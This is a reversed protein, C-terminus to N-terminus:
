KLCFQAWDHAAVPWDDGRCSQFDMRDSFFTSQRRTGYPAWYAKAQIERDLAAWGRKTSETLQQRSLQDIKRALARDAQNYTLNTNGKARVNDPNLLVDIFDAPHPYDQSWNAWGTQAKVSRDGLVQGYSASPVM